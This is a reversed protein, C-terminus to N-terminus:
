RAYRDGLTISSGILYGVVVLYYPYALPNDTLMVGCLAFFSLQGTKNLILLSTPANLRVLKTRAAGIKRYTTFLFAAWLAIGLLGYKHLIRLYDNHPHGWRPTDFMSEPVSYGSGFLIYEEAAEYIVEWQHLRGSTNIVIDGIRLAQDGGGFMTDARFTFLATTVALLLTTAVLAKRFKSIHPSLAAVYLILALQVLVIIRSELWISYGVLLVVLILSLLDAKVSYRSLHYCFIPLGAIAFAPAEDSIFAVFTAAAFYVITAFNLGSLSQDTSQKWGHRLGPLLIALATASIVLTVNEWYAQDLLWNRIDHYWSWAALAGIPLFVSLSSRPVQVKAFSAFIAIFFILLTIVTSLSIGMKVSVTISGLASLGFLLSEFTGLNHLHSNTRTPLPTKPQM